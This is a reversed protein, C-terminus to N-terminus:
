YYKDYIAKVRSAVKKSLTSTIKSENELCKGAIIHIKNSVFTELTSQDNINDGLLSIKRNSLDSILNSQLFYTKKNKINDKIYDGNIIAYDILNLISNKTNETSTVELCLRNGLEKMTRLSKIYEDDIQLKIEQDNINFIFCYKFFDPIHTINQNIIDIFWLPSNILIRPKDDRSYRNNDFFKNIKKIIMELYIKGLSHTHIFDNVQKKTLLSNENPELDIKYYKLKGSRVSYFPTITYTFEERLIAKELMKVTNEKKNCPFNGGEYYQYIDPTYTQDDLLYKKLTLVKNLCDKYDVVNGKNQYVCINFSIDKLNNIELFHHLDNLISTLYKKSDNKQNLMILVISGDKLTTLLHNKDSRKLLLELLQQYKILELCNKNQKKEDTYFLSILGINTIANKRLKYFNREIEYESKILFPIKNKDGIMISYYDINLTSDEYNNKTCVFIEKTYTKNKKDYNIFDFSNELNDKRNLQSLIWRYLQKKNTDEYNDLFTDLKVTSANILKKTSFSYVTRDILNIILHHLNNKNKILEKLKKNKNRASVSLLIIVVIFIVIILLLAIFHLYNFKDTITNLINEFIEQM